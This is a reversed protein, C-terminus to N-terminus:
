WLQISSLKDSECLSLELHLDSDQELHLDSDQELHLEGDQELHLDSDQELHLESDQELHLEGDQELHLESDVEEALASAWLNFHTQLQVWKLCHQWQSGEYTIKKEKRKEKVQEVEHFM